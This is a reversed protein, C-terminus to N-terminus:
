TQSLPQTQYNISSVWRSPTMPGCIMRSGFFQLIFWFSPATYTWWFGSCKQDVAGGQHGIHKHSDAHEFNVLRWDWAMECCSKRSCMDNQKRFVTLYVLIVAVNLNVAFRWIESWRTGGWHYSTNRFTQTSLNWWDNAGTIEDCPKCSDWRGISKCTSQGSTCRKSLNGIEMMCKVQVIFDTVQTNWAPEYM